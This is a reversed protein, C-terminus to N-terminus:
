ERGKRYLTFKWTVGSTNAWKLHLKTGAYQPVYWTARMVGNDIGLCILTGKSTVVTYYPSLPAYDSHKSPEMVISMNGQSAPGGSVAIMGYMNDTTIDVGHDNQLCPITLDLAGTGEYYETVLEAENNETVYDITGYKVLVTSAGFVVQTYFILALLLVVFVCIGAQVRPSGYAFPPIM